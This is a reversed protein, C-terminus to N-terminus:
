KGCHTVLRSQLDDKRVDFIKSTENKDNTLILKSNSFWLNCQEKSRKFIGHPCCKKLSKQLGFKKELLVSVNDNKNEYESDLNNYIVNLEADWSKCLDKRWRGAESNSVLIICSYLSLLVVSMIKKM